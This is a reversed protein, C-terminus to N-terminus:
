KNIIFFFPNAWNVQNINILYFNLFDETYVEHKKAFDNIADNNCLSVNNFKLGLKSQNSLSIFYTGIYKECPPFGGGNIYLNFKIKNGRIFRNISNAYFNDITFLNESKISNITRLKTDIHISKESSTKLFYEPKINKSYNYKILKNNKFSIIYNCTDIKNEDSYDSNIYISFNNEELNNILTKIKTTDSKSFYNINELNKYMKDNDLFWSCYVNKEIIYDNIIASNKNILISDLIVGNKNIKIIVNQNKDKDHKKEIFLFGDESVLPIRFHVYNDGISDSTSIKKIEGNRLLQEYTKYRITDIKNEILFRNEPNVIWKDDTCSILLFFYFILFLKKKM